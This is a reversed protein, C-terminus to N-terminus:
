YSRFFLDELAKKRVQWLELEDNGVKLRCKGDNSVTPVATFLLNDRRGVQITGDKTLAFEVAHNTGHMSVFVVFGNAGDAIDFFYRAREGPLLCENRRTADEVVQLRLTQFIKGISCEHRAKVWDLNEPTPNM